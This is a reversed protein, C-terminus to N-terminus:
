SLHPWYNTWSPLQYAVPDLFFLQRFSEAILFGSALVHVLPIMVVCIWVTIAYSIPTSVIGADDLYTSFGEVVVGALGSCTVVFSSVRWLLRERPTPFQDGWALFHILGYLIPSVALIIFEYSRHDFVGGLGVSGPIFPHLDSYGSFHPPLQPTPHVRRLANAALVIKESSHAGTLTSSDGASGQAMELAKYYEEYSCRLLAHVEQAKKERMITPAAVNIPKSWWVFYTLLTCFAHAATSVELLSLPLHQVLRSACNTCFWGVQVILLAKSLSSSEARGLIYEETIDTIVHPFYKMIYAFTDSKPVEVTHRPNTSIDFLSEEANLTDDDYSGYFAFGGMVAYFAHVLGFHPQSKREILNYRTQGTV